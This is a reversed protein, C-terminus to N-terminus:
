FISELPAEKKGGYMAKLVVCIEEGLVVTRFLSEFGLFVGKGSWKQILNDNHRCVDGCKYMREGSWNFTLVETGLGCFPCEFLYVDVKKKESSEAM